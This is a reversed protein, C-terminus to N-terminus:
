IMKEKAPTDKHFALYIAYLSVLIAFGGGIIIGEM